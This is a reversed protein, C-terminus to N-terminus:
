CFYSQYWVLVPSFDRPQQALEWSNIGNSYWATLGDLSFAYVYGPLCGMSLHGDQDVRSGYESSCTVAGNDVTLAYVFGDPDNSDDTVGYTFLCSLAPAIILSHLVISFPSIIKM